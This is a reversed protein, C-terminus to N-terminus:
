VYDQESFYFSLLWLKGTKMHCYEQSVRRSLFLSNYEAFNHFKSM